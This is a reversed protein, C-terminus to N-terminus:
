FQNPLSNFYNEKFLIQKSVKYVLITGLKQKSMQMADM